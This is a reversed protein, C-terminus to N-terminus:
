GCRSEILQNEPLDFIGPRAEPNPVWTSGTNTKLSELRAVEASARRALKFLNAAQFVDPMDADMRAKIEASDGLALHQFGDGTLPAV